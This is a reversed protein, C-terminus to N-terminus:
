AVSEQKRGMALAERVASQASAETEYWFSWVERGVDASYTDRPLLAYWRSRVIAAKVTGNALQEIQVNWFKRKMELRRFYFLRNEPEQLGDL